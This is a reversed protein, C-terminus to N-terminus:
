VPNIEIITTYHEDFLLVTNRLQHWLEVGSTKNEGDTVSFHWGRSCGDHCNIDVVSGIWVIL